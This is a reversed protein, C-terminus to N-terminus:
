RIDFRDAAALETGWKVAFALISRTTFCAAKRMANTM